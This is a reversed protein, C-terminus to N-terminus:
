QESEGGEEEKEEKPYVAIYDGSNLLGQVFDLWQNIVMSSDCDFELGSDQLRVRVVDEKDNWYVTCKNGYSKVHVVGKEDIWLEVTYIDGKYLEVRYWLKYV